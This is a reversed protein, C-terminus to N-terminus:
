SCTLSTSFSCSLLLLHYLGRSSREVPHVGDLYLAAGPDAEVLWVELALLHNQFYSFVRFEVPPVGDIVVHAGAPGDAHHTM